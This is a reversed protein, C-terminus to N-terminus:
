EWLVPQGLFDSVTVAMVGSGMRSGSGKIHTVLASSKDLVKVRNQVCGQTSKNGQSRHSPHAKGTHGWTGCFPRSIINWISVPGLNGLFTVDVRGHLLLNQNGSQQISGRPIPPAKNPNPAPCFETAPLCREGTM